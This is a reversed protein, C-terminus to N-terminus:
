RNNYNEIGKVFDRMFKQCNEKTGRVTVKGTEYIWGDSVSTFIAVNNKFALEMLYEKVKASKKAHWTNEMVVNLNSM